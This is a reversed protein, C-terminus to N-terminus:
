LDENLFILSPINKQFYIQKFDDFWVLLNFYRHSKYSSNFSGSSVELQVLSSISSMSSLPILYANSTMSIYTGFTKDASQENYM